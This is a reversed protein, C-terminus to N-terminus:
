KIIEFMKKISYVSSFELYPEKKSYKVEKLLDEISLLIEQMDNEVLIVRNTNKIFASVPDNIDNVIALVSRNTGLYDYLKGPIQTSKAENGIYLLADSNKYEELVQFYDKLGLVEVYKNNKLCLETDIDMSGIIKLIVKDKKDKNYLNLAEIFKYINRDKSIVGTYLIVKEKNSPSGLVEVAYGRPIYHMKQSIEKYMSKMKSLTPESVYFIYDAKNLLRKEIPKARLKTINNLTSDISWPDGWIQIWKVNFLKSVVKEAVLHSVKSDSSSIIIDYKKFDIKKYTKIWQREIGPFYLFEILWKKCKILSSRRRIIKDNSEKIGSKFYKTIIDIEDYYIEGCKINNILNDDYMNEPRKITLVDINKIGIKDSIANIYGFNRISASSSKVGFLSTIYLVKM